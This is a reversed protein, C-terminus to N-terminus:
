VQFSDVGEAYNGENREHLTKVSRESHLNYLAEPAAYDTKSKKKGEDQKFLDKYWAAQEITKYDEDREWEKKTTVEWTEPDWTCTMSEHITAACIGRGMVEDIFDEDVQKYKLYERFFCALNKNTHGVMVEAEPTNPIVVDVGGSARSHIEAFLSHGDKLQFFTYLTERLSMKKIVEGTHVHKISGEAELNYISGLADSIMSSHFNIHHNAERM